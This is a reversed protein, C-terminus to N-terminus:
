QVLAKGRMHSGEANTHALRMEGEAIKLQKVIENREDRLKSMKPNKAKEYKKL